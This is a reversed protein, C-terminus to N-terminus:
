EEREVARIKEAEGVAAPICATREEEEGEAAAVARSAAVALSRAEEAAAAM